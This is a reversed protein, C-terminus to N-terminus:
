QISFWETASRGDAASLATVAYNGRDLSTFSVAVDLTDGKAITWTTESTVCNGNLEQEATGDLTWTSVLCSSVTTFQVAGNCTNAFRARALVTSPWTFAEAVEGNADEVTVSFGLDSPGCDALQEGTDTATDDAATDEATDDSSDDNGSGGGNVTAGGGDPEFREAGTNFAPDSVACALFILLM